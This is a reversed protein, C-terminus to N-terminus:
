NRKGYEEIIKNITDNQKELIEKFSETIKIMNNCTKEAIEMLTKTHETLVNNEKYTSLVKELTILITASLIALLAITILLTIM